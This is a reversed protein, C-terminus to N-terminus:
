TLISMSRTRAESNEKLTNKNQQISFGNGTVRSRIIELNKM